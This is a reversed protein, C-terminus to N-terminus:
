WRAERQMETRGSEEGNEFSVGPTIPVCCCCFFVSTKEEPTKREAKSEERKKIDEWM